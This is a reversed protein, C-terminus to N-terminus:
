ESSTPSPATAIPSAAGPDTTSLTMVYLDLPENGRNTYAYGGPEGIRANESPYAAVLQVNGPDPELTAGAGPDDAM